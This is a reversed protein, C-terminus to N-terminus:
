NKKFSYNESSIRIKNSIARSVYYFCSTDNFFSYSSIEALNIIKILKGVVYTDKTICLSHKWKNKSFLSDIFSKSEPTSFSNSDKLTSLANFKRSIQIDLRKNGKCLRAIRGNVHEFNFGSFFPLPGCSKAIHPFHYLDHFNPTLYQEGFTDVFISQFDLFLKESEACIKDTVVDFLLILGERLFFISKIIDSTSSM